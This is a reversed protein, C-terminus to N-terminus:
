QMKDGLRELWSGTKSAGKELTRGTKELGKEIGKSAKGLDKELGKATNCGTLCLLLILVGTWLKKM